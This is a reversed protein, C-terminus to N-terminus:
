SDLFSSISKGLAKEAGKFIGEYLIKHNLFNADNLHFNYKDAGKTLEITQGLIDTINRNYLQITGHGRSHKILVGPYVDGQWEFNFDTNM